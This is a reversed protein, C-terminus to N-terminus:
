FCCWCNINITNNENKNFLYPADKPDIKNVTGDTLNFSYIHVEPRVQDGLRYMIGMKLYNRQKRLYSTM